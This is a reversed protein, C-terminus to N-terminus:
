LDRSGLRASSPLVARSGNSRHPDRGRAAPDAIAAGGNWREDRIPYSRHILCVSPPNTSTAKENPHPSSSPGFNSPASASAVPSGGGISAGVISLAAPASAVPPVDTKM